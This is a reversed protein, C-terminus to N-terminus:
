FCNVVSTQSAQDVIRFFSYRDGGGEPGKSCSDSSETLQWKTYSILIDKDNDTNQHALAKDQCLALAKMTAFVSNSFTNGVKTTSEM